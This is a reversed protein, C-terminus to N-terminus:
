YHKKDWQEWTKPNDNKFRQLRKYEYQMRNVEAAEQRAAEIQDNAKYLKVALWISLVALCVAASAVAVFWWLWRECWKKFGGVEDNLRKVAKVSAGQLVEKASNAASTTAKAINEDAMSVYYRMNDLHEKDEHSFVHTVDIKKPVQSIIDSKAGEIRQVAGEIHQMNKSHYEEMRQLLMDIRQDHKVITDNVTALVDAAAMKVKPVATPRYENIKKDRSFKGGDKSSTRTTTENM